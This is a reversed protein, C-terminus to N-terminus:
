KTTFNKTLETIILQRLTPILLFLGIMDTIFGPTLLLIGAVLILVGHTMLLIPNNNHLKFTAILEKAQKKVFFTGILATMIIISLTYSIGIFENVKFFVFLELLPISLFM